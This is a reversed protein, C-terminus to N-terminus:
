RRTKVRMTLKTCAVMPDPAFRRHWLPQLRLTPEAPEPQGVFSIGQM